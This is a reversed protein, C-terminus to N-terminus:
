RTGRHVGVQERPESWMAAVGPRIEDLVRERVDDELTFVLVKKTRAHYGVAAPNFEAIPVARVGFHSRWRPGVMLVRPMTLRDNTWLRRVGSLIPRGGGDPWIGECAQNVRPVPVSIAEIGSFLTAM